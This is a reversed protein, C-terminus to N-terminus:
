LLESDRIELNEVVGRLLISRSKHTGDMVRLRVKLESRCLNLDAGQHHYYPVPDGCQICKRNEPWINSIGRVNLSLSIAKKQFASFRERQDAARISKISTLEKM